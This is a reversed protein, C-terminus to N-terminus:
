PKKWDSEPFVKIYQYYFWWFYIAISLFPLIYTINKLSPYETGKHIILAVLPIASFNGMRACFAFGRRIREWREKSAPKRDASRISIGQYIWYLYMIFSLWPIILLANHDGKDGLAFTAIFGAAAINLKFLDFQEDSRRKIENKEITM